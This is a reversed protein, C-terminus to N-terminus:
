FVENLYFFIYFDTKEHLVLSFSITEILYIIDLFESGNSMAFMTKERDRRLYEYNLMFDHEDVFHFM